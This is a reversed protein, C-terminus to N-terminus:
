IQFKLQIGRFVVVVVVAENVVVIRKDCHNNNNNIATAAHLMLLIAGLLWGEMVEAEQALQDEHRKIRKIINLQHPRRQRCSYTPIYFTMYYFAEVSRCSCTTPIANGSPMYNLLIHVWFLRKAKYEDRKIHVYVCPRDWDPGGILLTEDSIAEISIWM